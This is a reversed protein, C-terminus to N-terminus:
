WDLGSMPFLKHATTAAEEGHMPRNYTSKGGNENWDEERRRAKSQRVRTTWGPQDMDQSQRTKLEGKRHERTNSRRPTREHYETTNSRQQATEHAGEHHQVSTRPKFSWLRTTVPLKDTTDGNPFSNPKWDAWKQLHLCPKIVRTGPRENARDGCTLTQLICNRLHM